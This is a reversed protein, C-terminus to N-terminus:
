LSYLYWSEETSYVSLVVIRNRIVSAGCVRTTCVCLCSTEAGQRLQPIKYPSPPFKTLNEKFKSDNARTISRFIKKKLKHIYSPM